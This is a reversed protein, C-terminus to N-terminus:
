YMEAGVTLGSSSPTQFDPYIDNFDIISVHLLVPILSSSLKPNRAGADSLPKRKNKSKRWM